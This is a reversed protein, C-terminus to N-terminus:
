PLLRAISGLGDARLQLSDVLYRNATNLEGPVDRKRAREALKAAEARFGNINNQLDVASQGSSQGKRLLGFVADSEQQSQQIDAAVERVYDKYANEKRISACGKILLFLLIVVVIGAGAAFLQRRRVIDRDPRRPGGGSRRPEPTTRRPSFDEPEDFFSLVGWTNSCRRDCVRAPHPIAGQLPPAACGSRSATASRVWRRSSVVCATRVM